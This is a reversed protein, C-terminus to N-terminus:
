KNPKLNDLIFNTKLSTWRGERYPVILHRPLPRLWGERLALYRIISPDTELLTAAKYIGHEYHVQRVEELNYRQLLDWTKTHTRVRKRKDLVETETM